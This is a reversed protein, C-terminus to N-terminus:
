ADGLKGKEANYGTEGVFVVLDEGGKTFYIPKKDKTSQIHIEKTNQNHISIASFQVYIMATTTYCPLLTM